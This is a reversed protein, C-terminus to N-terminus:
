LPRLRLMKGANHMSTVPITSRNKAITAPPMECKPSAMLESSTTNEKRMLTVVELMEVTM